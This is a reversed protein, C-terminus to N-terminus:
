CKSILNLLCNVLDENRWTCKVLECIFYPQELFMYFYQEELRHDRCRGIGSSNHLIRGTRIRTNIIVDSQRTGAACHRVYLIYQEMFEIFVVTGGKNQKM